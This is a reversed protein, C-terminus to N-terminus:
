KVLNLFAKLHLQNEVIVDTLSGKLIRILQEQDALEQDHRAKLAHLNDRAANLEDRANLVCNSLETLKAMKLLEMSKFKTREGM